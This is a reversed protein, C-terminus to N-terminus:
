AGVRGTLQGNAKYAQGSAITHSRGARRAEAPEALPLAITLSLLAM